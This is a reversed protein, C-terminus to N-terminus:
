ILHGRIIYEWLKNTDEVRGSGGVWTVYGEIESDKSMKGCHDREQLHGKGM